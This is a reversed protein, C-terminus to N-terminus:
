GTAKGTLRFYIIQAVTKYDGDFHHGGPREVLQAEALEPGMELAKRSASDAERLNAESAEWWTYLLSCCDALGAYARAYAPDM